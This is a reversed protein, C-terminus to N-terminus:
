IAVYLTQVNTVFQPKVISISSSWGVNGLNLFIFTQLNICCIFIGFRIDQLSIIKEWNLAYKPHRTHPTYGLHTTPPPTPESRSKSTARVYTYIVLAGTLRRVWKKYAKLILIYKKFDPISSRMECIIPKQRVCHPDHFILVRILYSAILRREVTVPSRLQFLVMTPSITFRNNM